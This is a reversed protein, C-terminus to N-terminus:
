VHGKRRMEDWLTERDGIGLEHEIDSRLKSQELSRKTTLKFRISHVARGRKIPEYAVNKDSCSNIEDVAPILVRAKFAQYTKYKEADLLQRLEDLTFDREYARMEKYHISKLLEYLRISYKSKFRLTWLLEYRTFDRQLQLLFPKMDNDLRIQIIGSKQNIYPKEIWRVLTERGGDLKVWVSKDAIDKIAAKIDRYNKGNDYDIGCIKCFDVINFEYLKFDTDSISIQSILYLVIKQQQISLSFRSKQILDNAKVVTSKRKELLKDDQM